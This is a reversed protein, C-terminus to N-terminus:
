MSLWLLCLVDYKARRHALDELSRGNHSVDLDVEEVAAMVRVAMVRVAESYIALMIPTWGDSDRENVLIGPVALLKSLIAINGKDCAYHLATRNNDNKANVDLGPQALLLDVVEEQSGLIAVMLCTWNNRGVKTNPDAGALILERAMQLEGLSCMALLINQHAAM